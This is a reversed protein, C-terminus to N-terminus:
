LNDTDVLIMELILNGSPSGMLRYSGGLRLVGGAANGCAKQLGKM